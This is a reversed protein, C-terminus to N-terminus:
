KGIATYICDSQGLEHALTEWQERSDVFLILVKNGLVALFKSSRWCEEIVRRLEFAEESMNASFIGIRHNSPLANHIFKIQTQYDYYVMKEVEDLVFIRISDVPFVKLRKLLHHVRGPTGVVVQVGELDERGRSAGVGICVQVKLKSNFQLIMNAIEQVSSRTPALVLAQCRNLNCVVNNLVDLRDTFTNGSGVKTNQVPKPNSFGKDKLASLLNIDLNMEGFSEYSHKCSSRFGSSPRM